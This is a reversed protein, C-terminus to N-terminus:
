ENGGRKLYDIVEMSQGPNYISYLEPFLTGKSLAEATNYVEDIVQNPVYVHGYMVKDPFLRNKNM